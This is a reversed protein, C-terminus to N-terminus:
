LGEIATAVAFLIFAIGVLWFSFRTLLPISLLRALIGIVGLIVGIWWTVLKPASLKM